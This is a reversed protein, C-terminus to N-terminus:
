KEEIKNIDFIDIIGDLENNEVPENMLSYKIKNKVNEKFTNMENNWNETDTAIILYSTKFLDNFNDEVIKCNKNIEGALSKISTNLVMIAPSALVVDTDEILGKVKKNETIQKFKTWMNNCLNKNDKSASVFCNNIRVKELQAYYSSNNKIQLKSIKGQTSINNSEEKKPISDTNNIQESNSTEVNKGSKIYKLLILELLSFLDVNVNTKYLTDSLEFCINKYDDYSLKDIRDNLKTELARKKVVNIIKKILTKYDVSLEKAKEIFDVIYNGDSNNLHEIMEIVQSNSILGLNDLVDKIEIHNKLKSIQDLISLADRLGGESFNAIETLADDDIEINEKQCINKLQIIIDTLGIKKFDLRQCRSLVTIPVDEINTTALIFIAHAPPEELTLLLANFASTSLMHVEDIIYVKYKSNIPSLKVNDIIERIQDVGTNSAADIEYIDSSTNFNKCLECELCPNGDTNNICNIARAFIKATSTKGTGRPGSFIYAHSIRNELISDKLLKVVVNQGVLEDFTQPRYKRYLVKYDM